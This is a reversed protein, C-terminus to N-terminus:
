PKAKGELEDLLKLFEPRARLPELDPNKRLSAVDKFGLAVAQRLLVLARDAHSQALEQRMAVALQADRAVLNTCTCLMCAATYTDNASDNGFRALEEATTALRAHNFVGRQSKALTM